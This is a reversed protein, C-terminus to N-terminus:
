WLGACQLSCTPCSNTIQHNTHSHLGDGVWDKQCTRKAKQQGGCTTECQILESAMALVQGQQMAPPLIMQLGIAAQVALLNVDEHQVCGICYGPVGEWWLLLRNLHHDLHAVSGLKHLM